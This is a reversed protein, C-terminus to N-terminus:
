FLWKKLIVIYIYFIISTIIIGIILRFLCKIKQKYTNIQKKSELYDLQIQISDNINNGLKQAELVSILMNNIYNSPVYNIYEELAEELSKGINVRNLVSKMEKSFTNDVIDCTIELSSKIHRSGKLSTLFISFYTISDIELNEKRKYISHDLLIIEFLIYYLLSIIPSILFGHNGFFFLICFIIITSTIRFIIFSSPSLSTNLLKLKKEIRKHM